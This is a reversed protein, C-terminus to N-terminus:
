CPLSCCHTAGADDDGTQPGGAGDTTVDGAGPVGQDVSAGADAADLGVPDLLERHLDGAHGGDLRGLDELPDLGPPHVPDGLEGHDGRHLGPPVGPQGLGAVRQVAVPQADGHRGADPADV